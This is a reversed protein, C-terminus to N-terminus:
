RSSAPSKPDLGEFLSSGVRILTAGEEIAIEFDHSMGMSLEALRVDAPSSAALRDRLARLGRFAPRSTEPDDALPAMTMLGAIEVHRCGLAHQWGAVLDDPDFGDKSEEHAVNVELFLRPRRSLEGAVADIRELLSFTDVSHIAAILPLIRRVKNRQLHGVLHWRVPEGVLPVREELQQPRSEGLDAIGLRVLTRVWSMEAYKTVAVLTVDSARRGARGCAAAMRSRVRGLNESIRDETASQLM